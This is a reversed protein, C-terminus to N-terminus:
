GPPTSARTPPRPKGARLSGRSVTGRKRVGASFAVCLKREFSAVMWVSRARLTGNERM